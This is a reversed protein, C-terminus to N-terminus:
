NFSTNINALSLPSLPRRPSLHPWPKPIKNHDKSSLFALHIVPYIYGTDSKTDSKHRFHLVFEIGFKYQYINNSVIPILPFGKHFGLKCQYPSNRYSWKKVSSATRSNKTDLTKVYIIYYIKYSYRNLMSIESSAIAICSINFDFIARPPLAISGM